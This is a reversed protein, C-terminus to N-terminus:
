KKIIECFKNKLDILDFIYMDKEPTDKIDQLQLELDSIDKQLKDIEEKTFRGISLKLVEYNIKHKDLDIKIDKNSRKNIIIQDTIVLQIFKMKERLDFLKSEIDEILKIKRKFYYTLRKKVFFDILQYANEFSIFRRGDEDICNLIDDPIKSYLKFTKFFKWKDAYYLKLRGEPFQIVYKIIGNKSLDNYGSIYNREILDLMLADYKEFTVNYPLDTVLMQDKDFNMVYDGINYWKNQNANFIINEPKIGVISPKLYYTNESLYCSDDILVKLCCDIINNIDYSFSKYSFGFGPANTRYLLVTPIIPLFFTPEIEIGEDKQINLLNFDYRFLELYKSTQLNLYRAATDTKPVRLTGIQGIMDIPCEKFLHKSALQVITNQLSADGHNYHYNMAKGCLTPMKWIKNDKDFKDNILSWMIKRAGIRLGDMINPMARTTIVYRAFADIETDLFDKIKKKTVTKQLSVEVGM